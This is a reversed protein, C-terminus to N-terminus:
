MWCGVGYGPVGIVSSKRSGRIQDDVVADLLVVARRRDHLGRVEVGLLDLEQAPAGLAPHLQPVERAHQPVVGPEDQAVRGSTRACTGRCCSASAARARLRARLDERAVLPHAGGLALIQRASRARTEVITVM